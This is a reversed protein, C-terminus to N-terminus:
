FKNNKLWLNIFITMENATFKRWNEDLLGSASRKQVVVLTMFNLTAGIADVPTNM